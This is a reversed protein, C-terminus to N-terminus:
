ELRSFKPAPTIDTSYWVSMVLRCSLYRRRPRSFASERGRARSFPPAIIGSGSLLRPCAPASTMAPVDGPTALLEFREVARTLRRKRWVLQGAYLFLLSLVIVYGAVVYGM